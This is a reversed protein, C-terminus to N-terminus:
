LLQVFRIARVDEDDHSSFAKNWLRSLEELDVVSITVAM